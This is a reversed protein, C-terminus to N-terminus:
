LSANKQTFGYIESLRRSVHRAHAKLGYQAYVQLVRADTGYYREDEPIYANRYCGIGLSLAFLLGAIAFHKRFGETKENKEMVSTLILGTLFGGLHAQWAIGPIFNILLNIIYTSILSSRMRENQWGGQMIVLYTYCALLGYLGGSLGVGVLNEGAAFLFLSGGIVSCLLILLFRGKGLYPELINGLSWLSLGNMLIHTLSIHVFGVTLLRWWEGALVFPKYYAGVVIAAENENEMGLSHLICFVIVCLVLVVTTAVPMRKRM